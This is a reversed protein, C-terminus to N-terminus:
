RVAPQEDGDELQDRLQGGVSCHDDPEFVQVPGVRHRPIQELVEGAVQDVLLDHQDAGVSGVLDGAVRGLPTSQGLQGPQRGSMSDVQFPQVAVLDGLAHGRQEAAGAGLSSTSWTTARPRPLGKKVLSSTAACRDPSAMGM